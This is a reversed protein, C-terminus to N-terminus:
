QTHFQLVTSDSQGTDAVRTGAAQAWIRSLRCLCAGPTCLLNTHLTRLEFGPKQVLKGSYDHAFCYRLVGM